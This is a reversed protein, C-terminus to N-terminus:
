FTANNLLPNIRQRITGQSICNKLVNCTFSFINFVLMTEKKLFTKKKCKGFHIATLQTLTTNNDATAKM